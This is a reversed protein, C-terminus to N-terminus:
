RSIQLFRNVSLTTSTIGIVLALFFLFVIKHFSLFSFSTHFLDFLFISKLRMIILAYSAFLFGIAVLAGLISQICGEIYLPIKIFPRSAGVLYMIEIENKRKYLTLKITNSVVFIVAIFLIAIFLFGVYEITRILAMYKALFVGEYMVEEFIGVNKIQRSLEKLAKRELPKALVIDLSAPFPNISLGRLLKKFQPTHVVFEERARDKSVSRVEEVEDLKRVTAIAKEIADAAVDSKILASMNKQPHDRDIVSHINEFLLWFLGLMYITLIITTTTLLFYSYNEKINTLLTKFIYLIQYLKNM